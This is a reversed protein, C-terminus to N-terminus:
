KLPLARVFSMQQLADEVRLRIGVATVLLSGGPRPESFDVVLVGVEVRIKVASIRGLREDLDVDAVGDEVGGLGAAIEDGDAAEPHGV